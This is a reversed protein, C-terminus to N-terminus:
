ILTHGVVHILVFLRHLLIILHHFHFMRIHINVICVLPLRIWMYQYVHAIMYVNTIYVCRHYRYVYVSLHQITLVIYNTYSYFMWVFQQLVKIKRPILYRYQIFYCLVSLALPDASQKSVTAWTIVLQVVLVQRTM